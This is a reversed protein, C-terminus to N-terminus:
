PGCGSPGCGGTGCGGGLSKALAAMMSGTTATGGFTGVVRGPPAIVVIQASDSGADVKCTKMFKAEAPDSPDIKIVEVAGRLQAQKNLGEAAALSEKNHKTRSSQLCVAALKGSQLVKLVDAMGSSVFAESLDTKNIQTPYGATVAGNPAIVLTLPLPSRDAGYRTVLPQDAPNGVSIAVFSARNSYKAQLKRAEALMKTSAPDNKKYFTAIVYRNRKAAAQMAAGAPSAKAGTAACAVGVVAAIMAIGAVRKMQM